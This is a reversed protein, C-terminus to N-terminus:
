AVSHRVGPCDSRGCRRARRRPRADQGSYLGANVFTAAGVAAALGGLAALRGLRRTWPLRPGIRRAVRWAAFLVVSRWLFPMVDPFRNWRQATAAVERAPWAGLDNEVEVLPPKTSHRLRWVVSDGDADQPAPRARRIKFPLFKVRVTWRARPPIPRDSLLTLVLGHGHRRLFWVAGEDFAVADALSHRSRFVLMLRNGRVRRGVPDSLSRQLRNGQDDLGARGLIATVGHRFHSSGRRSGIVDRAAPTRADTAVTVTTAISREGHDFSKVTTSISVSPGPTASTPAGGALAALAASVVLRLFALPV